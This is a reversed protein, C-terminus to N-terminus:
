VEGLVWRLGQKTQGYEEDLAKRVDRPGPIMRGAFPRDTLPYITSKNFLLREPISWVHTANEDMWFVDLHPIHLGRRSRNGLPLHASQPYIKTRPIFVLNIASGGPFQWKVTLFNGFSSM